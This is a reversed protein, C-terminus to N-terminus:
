GKLNSCSARTRQCEWALAEKLGDAFSTQPKWGLLTKAKSTDFSFYHGFNKVMSTTIMPQSTLGLASALESIRALVYALGFPLYVARFHLDMATGIENCFDKLSISDSDLILFDENSAAPCTGALLLGNILDEVHVLNLSAEPRAWMPLFGSRLQAIISPIFQLDGPGYVWGPYIITTELGHGRFDRVLRTAHIKSDPYKEGWESYPNKESITRMFSPLGFVDSTSLFVLRSVGAELAAECVSRTGEVNTQYYLKTSASSNVLAAAHFVTGAGELAQRVSERIRLDCIKTRVNEAGVFQEELRNAVEQNRVLGCVEVNMNALRRFLAGGIFGGAGTIVVRGEPLKLM